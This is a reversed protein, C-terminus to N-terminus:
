IPEIAQYGRVVETICNGRKEQENETCCANRYSGIISDYDARAPDLSNM